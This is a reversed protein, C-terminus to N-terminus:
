ETPPRGRAARTRDIKIFAIAIGCLIIAGGVAAHLPPEEAFFAWTLMSAGVPEGLIALTVLHAPIRRVSWNLLTHGLVSGLVACAAIALYAEPAHGTLPVGGILAAVLLGAAAVANVAALYPALAVGSRMRRGVVLYAAATAAGAIALLDGVIADPSQSWDGGALLVCGAAAVAIGAIQRGSVRDGLVITGLVAAFIPQTAVLAVSAATSTYYLSTIWVGFHAGLLLGALVILLRDRAPLRVLERLGRGAGVSLLLAAIGVRLAAFALAPAPEAARVLPASTSVAVIALLLLLGAV